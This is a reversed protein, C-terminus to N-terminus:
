NQSGDEDGVKNQSYYVEQYIKNTKLLEDHKGIADIKGDNMVIIQDADSVSSIRQAIIIKTIQPNNEKLGKRILMDTKTDVASTSDDLILVKPKKLLARAICLRQKQGGSVNSGGEEIFTDYGKPFTQIFEDACATKCAEIMQEDSAEKDGWRLNEKITGSFLLNKQLVVAIQNRLVKIDYERVDHGGVYVAGSSVDYLRSILNILSTKGSGTSGLIGVTQGSKINLNINELVNKDADAKYKFNVNEFVVDGSSVDMLPNEPNVIDSKTLMVEKIRRASELSMSLTVFIMALMMMSSLIELGYTNLSSIEGVTFDTTGPFIIYEHTVATKAGFYCLLMIAVHIFVQMVPNNFAIIREAKKFNQSLDNSAVSFKEKEHEERVYSKVVRIGKINEQVSNNLNDYKTFAKRFIKMTVRVITFLIIGLAPLLIVYILALEYNIMFGMIIAMILNLPCRIVIRLIMQFATQCMQVDTTLRTVLSSTKFSDINSFSFDQIKKFLDGRLNKAFGTSARAGFVAGGIGSLLSVTAMAILILGYLLVQKIEPNDAQMINILDKGIFVIFSEMLVELVMAIPTLIAYIKYERISKALLKFM